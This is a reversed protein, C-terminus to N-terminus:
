VHSGSEPATMTERDPSATPRVVTPDESGPGRVPVSEVSSLSSLRANFDGPSSLTLVPVQKERRLGSNISAAVVALLLGLVAPQLLLEVPAPFWLAVASVAFAIFLFTM